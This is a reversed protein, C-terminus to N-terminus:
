LRDPSHRGKRLDEGDLMAPELRSGASGHFYFVPKGGPAGYEAYALTRGDPLRFSQSLLDTM